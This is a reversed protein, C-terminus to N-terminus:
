VLFLLHSLGVDSRAKCIRGHGVCIMNKGLVQLIYGHIGVVITPLNEGVFKEHRLRISSGLSIRQVGLSSLHTVAERSYGMSIGITKDTQRTKRRGRRHSRNSQPRHGQLFCGDLRRPQANAVTLSRKRCAPQRVVYGENAVYGSLGACSRLLLLFLCRVGSADLNGRIM